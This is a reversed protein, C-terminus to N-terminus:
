LNLHDTAIENVSSVQNLGDYTDTLLTKLSTQEEDMNYMWQM